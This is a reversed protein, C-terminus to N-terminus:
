RARDLTAWDDIQLRTVLQSGGNSDPKLILAEGDGLGAAIQGFAEVINPYHTVIITNTRARPTHAARSKLWAARTGNQDAQMSQGGDGLEPFTTPQGLRAIEVTQLARYTPSSLVQGIPIGLRHLADGFARASRVGTEDLQREGKTNDPNVRSSDPAERPSSAHRMLIVYGGQRLNTLLEPRSIAPSDASCMAGVLFMSVFWSQCHKLGSM